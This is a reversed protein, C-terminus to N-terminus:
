IWGFHCFLILAVTWRGETVIVGNEVWRLKQQVNDNVNDYKMIGLAEGFLPILIWRWHNKHLLLSM